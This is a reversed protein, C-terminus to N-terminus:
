AGGAEPQTTAAWESREGPSAGRRGGSPEGEVRACRFGLSDRRGGPGYKGRCAARVISAGGYWSGGRIVRHAAGEDIWASGDAPAGDYNDHWTDACWEWVNGHMECLGWGNAPLSGVPVPGDSPYYNVQTRSIESGFNYATGSGARCAYEWQAESPLDLGLEPRAGNLRKVFRQAEGWSLQTVPLLPGKRSSMNDGMVAEWLEQRCATEFMWFGHALVVEHRPCEDNDRGFEDAPSGMMFRGPPCWRLRQSVRSGNAAAVAFSAWAGYADTGWAEAWEPRTLPVPMFGPPWKTSGDWVAGAFMSMDLGRARSFDAFSLDARAFDFGTLDDGRFNVGRLDAGILDCAPDLGAIRVLQFFSETRAQLVDAMRDLEDPRFKM